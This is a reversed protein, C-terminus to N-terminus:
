AQTVDVHLASRRRPRVVQVGALELDQRHVVHAWAGQWGDDLGLEAAFLTRM